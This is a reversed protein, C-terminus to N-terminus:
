TRKSSNIYAPWMDMAVARIGTREQAVSPSSTPTSAPDAQPRRRHVRRHWRRHDYVLTLYSHGKRAAKEDVGILEPVQHEKAARGRAVAREM